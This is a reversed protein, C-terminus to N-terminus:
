PRFISDAKRVGKVWSLVLRKGGHRVVELRIRKTSGETQGAATWTSVWGADGLEYHARVSSMHGLTMGQESTANAAAYFLNESHQWPIDFDNRSHILTLDVNDSDRVFNALRESTVWTEQIRKAFFSQLFPYPRLPSLIPLIGGISYSLMLTPIDTFAAVLVMGSFEVQRKSVFHEAVAAAVATGLSQGLIVIRNPSIHAINIAWDLLAIGDDIMGRETPNGTSYGFGRYDVTLV